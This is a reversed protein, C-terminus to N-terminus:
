RATTPEGVPIPLTLSGSRAFTFTVSVTPGPKVVTTLSQMTATLTAPEDAAGSTRAVIKRGGLIDQAGKLTVSSAAPSSISVLKDGQVGANTISFVLPASQGPEYSRGDGPPFAIAANLIDLQQVHGTAGNVASVEDGSTNVQGSSCGALVAIAGLVLLSKATTRLPNVPADGRRKARELSILPSV